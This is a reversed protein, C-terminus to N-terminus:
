QLIVISITLFGKSIKYIFFTFFGRQSEKREERISHWMTVNSQCVQYLITIDVCGSPLTVHPECIKHIETGFHGMELHGTRWYRSSVHCLEHWCSKMGYSQAHFTQATYFFSSAPQSRAYRTTDCYPHIFIHWSSWMQHTLNCTEYWFLKFPPFYFQQSSKVLVLWCSLVCTVDLSLLAPPGWLVSWEILSM